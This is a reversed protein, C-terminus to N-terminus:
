QLLIQTELIQDNILIDIDCVAKTFGFNQMIWESSGFFSGVSKYRFRKGFTTASQHLDGKIFNIKGSLNFADLYNNIKNETNTDLILPFNKFM